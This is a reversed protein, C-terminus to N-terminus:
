EDRKGTTAATAATATTMRLMQGIEVSDGVKKPVDSNAVAFDSLRVAYDCKLFLLRGPAIAKSQPSEELFTLRADAVKLERTVGHLTMDGVLTASWTTFGEGRKVERIEEVRTLTFRIEPHKDADLWDPGALHEDRLPIGTALSRVPLAWAGGALKAPQDAPGAIAYGQVANSKGVIRELPAASTFTVQAERGSLTRYVIADAPLSAPPTPPERGAAATFPVLLVLPALMIAIATTRRSTM